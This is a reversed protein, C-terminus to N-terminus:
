RWSLMRGLILAGAHAVNLSDMGGAMPIHIKGPCRKLVNPRIGKEEGGLVLVAPFVFTQELVSQGQDMTAAYINFGAQDIHDLTRALNTVQAVGIRNLAGASAKMAGPGLPASRDRPIIIGAGGLAALTRALTGLNGPDQVQDLLLLVPFVARTTNNLLLDLDVLTQMRLRAAIGQRAAGMQQLEQDPVLKFRVHLQRCRSIVPDLGRPVPKKVLVLDIHEPNEELAEMVPKKGLVLNEHM